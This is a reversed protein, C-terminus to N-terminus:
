RLIGIMGPLVPFGREASKLGGQLDLTRQLTRGLVDGGSPELPCVHQSPQMTEALGLCFQFIAKTKELVCGVPAGLHETGEGVQKVFLAIRGLGDRLLTAAEGKTLLQGIGGVTGDRM